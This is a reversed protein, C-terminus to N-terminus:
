RAITLAVLHIFPNHPLMLFSIRLPEPFHIHHVWMTHNGATKVYNEYHYSTRLGIRVDPTPDPRRGENIRVHNEFTVVDGHGFSFREYYEDGDGYALLYTASAFLPKDFILTQGECSVINKAGDAKNPFFYPISAIMVTSRSRPLLEAPFARRDSSIDVDKVNTRHCIADFNAITFLPIPTNEDSRPSVIHSKNAPMLM